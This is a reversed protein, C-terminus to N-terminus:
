VGGPIEDKNKEDKCGWKLGKSKLKAIFAESHLYKHYPSLCVLLNGNKNDSRDGNLHHVIEGKKLRRGLAKEAIVIHQYRQKGNICVLIYGAKQITFGKYRPNNPGLMRYRFKELRKETWAESQTRNLGAERLWRCITGRSVGHKKECQRSTMSNVYDALVKERTEESHRIAYFSDRGIKRERAWRRITECPIDFRQACEHSSLGSAYSILVKEKFDKSYFREQRSRNIGESKIWEYITQKSVNFIKACQDSSLGTSYTEIIKTRVDTNHVRKKM